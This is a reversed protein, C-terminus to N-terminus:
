SELEMRRYLEADSVCDVAEGYENITYLDAGRMMHDHNRRDTEAQAKHRAHFVVDPLPEETQTDLIGFGMNTRCVTFRPM